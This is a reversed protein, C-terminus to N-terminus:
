NSNEPQKVETLTLIFDHWSKTGKVKKLRAFEADEFVEAIRKM